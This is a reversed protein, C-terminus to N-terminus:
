ARLQAALARFARGRHSLGHKEAPALEALTRGGADDPVFVPDYGFGGTGRPGGAIVGDVVGEAAVQRGDPFLVLAVTRFRARRGPAPVGALADLLKAVNDAYRAAPGAFRATHVGPAGGLHEVELGTDDAVAPEGTANMVAAAKLRANALLTTGTEEVDALGAPRPAVEIGAEDLLAEIEAVKDANASALRLRLRGGGAGM